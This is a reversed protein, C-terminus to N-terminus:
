VCQVRFLYLLFVCLVFVFCFPNFFINIYIDLVLIQWYVKFLNNNILVLHIIVLIELTVMIVLILMMVLEACASKVNIWQENEQIDIQSPNHAYEPIYGDTM